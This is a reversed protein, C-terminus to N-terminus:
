APLFLLVEFLDSYYLPSDPRTHLYILVRTRTKQQKRQKQSNLLLM